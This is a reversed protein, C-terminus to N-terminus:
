LLILPIGIVHFILCKCNSLLDFCLVSFSHTKNLIFFDVAVNYKAKFQLEIVAEYLINNLM